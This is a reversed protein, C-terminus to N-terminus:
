KSRKKSFTEFTLKQVATMDVLDTRKPKTHVIEELNRAKWQKLTYWGHGFDLILVKGEHWAYAYDSMGSDKWLWPWGDKPLIASDNDTLYDGVIKRFAKVMEVPNKKSKTKKWFKDFSSPYGDWAISGLWEAQPGVGVYFDARTGM